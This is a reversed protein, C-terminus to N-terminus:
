SWRRRGCSDAITLTGTQYGAATPAFQVSITCSSNAALNATCPNTVTFAGSVSVAISTLAVGGSNTLTM